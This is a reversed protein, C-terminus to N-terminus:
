FLYHHLLFFDKVTGLGRDENTSRYIRVYVRVYTFRTRTLLRVCGLKSVNLAQFLFYSQLYISQSSSTSSIDIESPPVNKESPPVNKDSPPNNRQSQILITQSLLM